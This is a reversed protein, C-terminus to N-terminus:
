YYQTIIRIQDTDVDKFHFHACDGGSTRKVYQMPSRTGMPWEGGQIWRPKKNDAIHFLEGLKEKAYLRQAKKTKM